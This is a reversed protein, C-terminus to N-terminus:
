NSTSHHMQATRKILGATRLSHTTVWLTTRPLPDSNELWRSHTNPVKRGICMECMHLQPPLMHRHVGMNTIQEYSFRKGPPIQNIRTLYQLRSVRLPYAQQGFRNVTVAPDATWENCSVCCAERVTQAPPVPPM